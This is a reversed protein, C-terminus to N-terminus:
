VKQWVNVVRQIIMRSQWEIWHTLKNLELFLSTAQLQLHETNPRLVTTSFFTLNQEFLLYCDLFIFLMRPHGPLVSMTMTIVTVYGYIGPEPCVALQINVPQALWFKVNWDTIPKNIILSKCIWKKLSALHARCPIFHSTHTKLFVVQESEGAIAM